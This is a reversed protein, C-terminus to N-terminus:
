PSPGSQYLGDLRIPQSLRAGDLWLQHHICQLRGTALWGLVTPYLRHEAAQVRAALTQATDDPQIPVPAHAVLPGDDLLDSVFHVSCGHEAHRADLARQHTHLGKLSPLLSPHINIIRDSYHAVFAPTLIRMYGALVLLQPAYADIAKILAQDYTARDPYQSADVTQTPYQLARARELGQARPRDSLVARIDIPLADQQIAKAIASFNTGTGSLLVVASLTRPKLNSSSM